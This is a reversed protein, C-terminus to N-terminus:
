FQDSFPHSDRTQLATGLIGLHQASQSSLVVLALHIALSNSDMLVHKTSALIWCSGATVIVVFCWSCFFIISELWHLEASFGLPSESLLFDYGPM